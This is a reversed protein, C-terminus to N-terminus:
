RTTGREPGNANIHIELDVPPPDPGLDESRQSEPTDGRQRNPQRGPRV